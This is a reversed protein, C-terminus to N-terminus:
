YSLYKRAKLDAENYNIRLITTVTIVHAHIRLAAANTADRKRMIVLVHNAAASIADRRRTIVDVHNAAASIAEIKLFKM